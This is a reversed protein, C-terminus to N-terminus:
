VSDGITLGKVTAGVGAREFYEAKSYLFQLLFRPLL